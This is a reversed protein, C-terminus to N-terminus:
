DDSEDSDRLMAYRDLLMEEHTQESALLSEIIQALAADECNQLMEAYLHQSEREREIAVKFLLLIRQQKDTLPTSM